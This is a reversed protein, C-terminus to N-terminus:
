GACVIGGGIGECAGGSGDGGDGGGCAGGGGGGVAAALSCPGKMGRCISQASPRKPTFLSLAPAAIGRSAEPGSPLLHSWALLCWDPQPQQADSTSQESITNYSATAATHESIHCWLWTSLWTTVMQIAHALDLTAAVSTAAVLVTPAQFNPDFKPRSDCHFM